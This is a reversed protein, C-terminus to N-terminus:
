RKEEICRVSFANARPCDRKPYVGSSFYFFMYGAHYGKVDALWYSGYLGASYLNADYYYRYGAAPFWVSDDKSFKGRFDIGVGVFPHEFYKVCDNFGDSPVKWGAPCPDYVTKNRGWRSDDQVYQWDYNHQNYLVFTLPNRVTYEITGVYKDSKEPSPWRVTSAAMVNDDRVCSGLFPDKRGWQYLLGYSEHSVPSASVAGLNRDMVVDGDLYEQGKPIDTLWIHWSWLVNGADDKVAVLANGKKFPEPVCVTVYGDSYLAKSILEGPLPAVDSGFSEWLVSCSSIEGGPEKSGNGCVARFRYEGSGSVIYCNATGRKSLDSQAHTMVISLIAFLLCHVKKM